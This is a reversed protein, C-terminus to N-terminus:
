AAVELSGKFAAESENVFKTVKTALKHPYHVRVATRVHRASITSTGAKHVLDVVDNMLKGEVREIIASILPAVQGQMSAQKGLHKRALRKIYFAYPHSPKTIKAM